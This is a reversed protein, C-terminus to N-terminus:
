RNPDAGTAVRPPRSALPGDHHRHPNSLVVGTTAAIRFREVHGALWSAALLLASVIVSLPVIPLTM